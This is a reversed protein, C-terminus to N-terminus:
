SSAASRRDQATARSTRAYTVPDIEAMRYGMFPVLSRLHHDWRARLCVYRDAGAQEDAVTTIGASRLRELAAFYRRRWQEELVPDPTEEETARHGPLFADVLTALLTTTARGLQDISASDKVQRYRADDLASQVLTVTDLAIFCFRSVAYHPERFRFYFLVPYFHHSEKVATMDVALEELNAYGSTFEGGPALGAIVVTADATERALLYTKLALANRSRLASYVQMLYTLSLSLLSAGILSSLLFLARPGRTGPMAFGSQCEVVSDGYARLILGKGFTLTVAWFGVLLVLVTPGAFSLVLGRRDDSMRRAVGRFVNWTLRAIGNSLLGLGIRAYLVTLFIDLLVAVVLVAGIIQELISWLSSAPVAV